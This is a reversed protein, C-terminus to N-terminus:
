TRNEYIQHVSESTVPPEHKHMEYELIDSEKVIYDIDVIKESNVRMSYLQSINSGFESHIM